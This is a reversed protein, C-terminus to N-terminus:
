VRRPISIIEARRGASEAAGAQGGRGGAVQWLRAELRELSVARQAVFEMKMNVLRSFIEEHSSMLRLPIENSCSMCTLDGSETIYATSEGYEAEDICKSFCGWCVFCTCDRCKYGNSITTLQSCVFCHSSSLSPASISRYPETGHWGSFALSFCADSNLAEDCYDGPLLSPNYECYNTSIREVNKPKTTTTKAYHRALSNRQTQDSRCTRSDAASSLSSTWLM